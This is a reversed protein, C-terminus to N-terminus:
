EWESVKTRLIRKALLLLGIYGITGGVSYLGIAAAPGLNAWRAALLSGILSLDQRESVGFTAVLPSTVFQALFMFAMLQVYVGAERWEEGFALAFLQPGALGLVATPLAGVLALHKATKVLLRELAYPNTRILQAAEGIYVDGVSRGILTMPLGVVRQGLAFWGAVQPGYFAAILLPPTYLVASYVLASSTSIQPFRRYRLAARRIGAVSVKKIAEKNHRWTLTALTGSGGMKGVVQGLLLGVADLKMFGLVLQTVVMGLSQNVKTRAIRAYAKRRIAWRSFAQYVGAGVLGLPVLWLYPKLAPTNVSRALQDGMLWVGLGALPGMFLVIGLTLALLNAATEDDEPLTIAVEYRLGAQVALISLISTYVALVGFEAPTYLRTLLPAALLTVSQGLATGAFLVAV